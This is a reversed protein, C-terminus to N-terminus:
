YIRGQHRARYGRGMSVYVELEPPELDFYWGTQAGYCCTHCNTLITAVPWLRQIDQQYPKMGKRFDLYAWLGKIKGFGWENPIRAKSMQTNFNAEAGNLMRHKFPAMLWRSLPYAPDGYLCYVRGLRRCIRRMIRILNSKDLMFADNNRGNIPGFPLPMIGNPLTLGQWKVCHCKKHGNYLIRQFRGPRDLRQVSGDVFGVCNLLPCRGRRGRRRIAHAFRPFQPGWCELSRNDRLHGFDEYIHDIAAQFIMSIATPSRGMEWALVPLTSPYSLRRLMICLAEEGTCRHQHGAHGIKMVPPFRLARLLRRMHRLTFRFMTKVTAPSKGLDREIRAFSWREPGIAYTIKPQCLPEAARLLLAGQAQLLTHQWSDGHEFFSEPESDDFSGSSSSWSGSGSDSASSWGSEIAAAALTSLALVIAGTRPVRMRDLATYPARGM